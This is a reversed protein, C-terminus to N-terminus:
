DMPQLALTVILQRPPAKGDESVFSIVLDMGGAKEFKYYGATYSTEPRWGSQRATRRAQKAAQKLLDASGSWTTSIEAVPPQYAKSANEESHDERRLGAPSFQSM